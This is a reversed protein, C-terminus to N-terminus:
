EAHDAGKPERWRRLDAVLVTLDLLCSLIAPLFLVIQLFRFLQHVPESLTPVGLHLGWSVVFLPWALWLFTGFRTFSGGPVALEALILLGSQRPRPGYRGSATIAFDLLAAGVSIIAALMLLPMAWPVLGGLWVSFLIHTYLDAFWDLGYGLLTTQGYARAVPGDVWDLLTSVLLMIGTSFHFGLGLSISAAVCLLLRVYCILNAYYWWIDSFSRQTNMKDGLRSSGPM